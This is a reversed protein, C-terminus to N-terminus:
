SGRKARVLAVLEEVKPLIGKVITEVGAENPHIGDRLALKAQTAVGDLFFPYFVVDHAKALDAFVAEFERVYEGGLNPAARMGCFLWRRAATNSISPNDQDTFVLLRAGWSMRCVKM